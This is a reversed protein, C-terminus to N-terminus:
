CWVLGKYRYVDSKDSRGSASTTEPEWTPSVTNQGCTDRVAAFLWHGEFELAGLKRDMQSKGHGNVLRLTLREIPNAKVQWLWREGM